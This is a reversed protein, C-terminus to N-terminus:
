NLLGHGHPAAHGGAVMYRCEGKAVLTFSKDPELYVAEEKGIETETVGDSILAVGELILLIEEHGKSGMEREEGAAAEGYVLYIGHRGTQESGFVYEHYEKNYLERINYKKL